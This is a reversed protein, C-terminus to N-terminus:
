HGRDIVIELLQKRVVSKVTSIKTKGWEPGRTVDAQASNKNVSLEVSDWAPPWKV